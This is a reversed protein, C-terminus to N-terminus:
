MLCVFWWLPVRLLALGAGFLLCALKMMMVAAYEPSGTARHIKFYKVLRLLQSSLMVLSGLLGFAMLYDLYVSHTVRNIGVGDFLAQTGIVNGGLLKGLFGQSGFFELYKASIYSRDATASELDGRSLASWTAKLRDTLPGLADSFAPLVFFVFVLVLLACFSIWKLKKGAGSLIPLKTMALAALVLLGTRSGSRFVAFAFLVCCLAPLWKLRESRYNLCACLGICCVLASYNPDAFGIGATRLDTGETGTLGFALSMASILAGCIIVFQLKKLLEPRGEWELSLTYTCLAIIVTKISNMGLSSLSVAFFYLIIGLLFVIRDKSLVPRREFIYIKLCLAFLYFWILTFHGGVYTGIMNDLFTLSFTIYNFSDYRLMLALSAPIVVYKLPLSAQPFLAVLFIAAYFVAVLLRETAAAARMGEAQRAISNPKATTSHEM